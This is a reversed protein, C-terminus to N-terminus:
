GRTENRMKASASYVLRRARNMSGLPRFDDLSANWPNFSYGDIEAEDSADLEQAPIILRAITVLPADAEKWEVTGDEIPTRDANVYRQV